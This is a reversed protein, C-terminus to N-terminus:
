LNDLRFDNLQDNTIFYPVDRNFYKILRQDNLRNFNRSQAADQRVVLAKFAAGHKADDTIGSVVASFCETDEPVYAHGVDISLHISEARKPDYFNIILFHKFYAVSAQEYNDFGNSSYDKLMASYTDYCQFIDLELEFIDTIPRKNEDYEKKNFKLYIWYKQCYPLLDSKESRLSHLTSLSNVNPISNPKTQQYKVSHLFTSIAIPLITNDYGGNANPEFRAKRGASTTKEFVLVESNVTSSKTGIINDIGVLVSYEKVGISLRIKIHLHKHGAGKTILHLILHNTEPDHAAIGEYSDYHEVVNSLTCYCYRNNIPSYIQLVHRDIAGNDQDLSYCYWYTNQFSLPVPVLNGLFFLPDSPRQYDIQKESKLYVEKFWSFYGAEIRKGGTSKKRKDETLVVKSIDAFGKKVLWLLAAIEKGMSFQFSRENDYHNRLFTEMSEPTLLTDPLGCIQCLAVSRGLLEKRTYNHEFGKDQFGIAALSYTRLYTVLEMDKLFDSTM